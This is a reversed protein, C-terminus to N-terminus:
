FSPPHHNLLNNRWKELDLFILNPQSLIYYSYLLFGRMIFYIAYNGVGGLTTYTCFAGLQGQRTNRSWGGCCQRFQLPCLLVTALAPWWAASAPHPTALVPCQTTVHQEGHWLLQPDGPSCIKCFSSFCFNNYSDVDWLMLRIHQLYYM